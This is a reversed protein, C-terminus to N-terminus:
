LFKDAYCNFCKDDKISIQSTFTFNLGTKKANKNPLSECGKCTRPASVFFDTAQSLYWNNNFM